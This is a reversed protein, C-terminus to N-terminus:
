VSIDRDPSTKAFHGERPLNFGEVKQNLKGRDLDGRKLLGRRFIINRYVFRDSITIHAQKLMM